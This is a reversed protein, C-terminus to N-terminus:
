EDGYPVEGTLEIEEYHKFAAFAEENTGLRYSRKQAGGENIVTSRPFVKHLYTGVATKTLIKNGSVKMGTCYNMYNEYLDAFAAKEKWVGRKDLPNGIIDTLTGYSLGDHLWQQASNFSGIKQAQLGVTEPVDRLEFDSLDMVLMDYLFAAQVDPSDVAAKLANFYKRDGVKSNNVDYVAYRREGRSSPVAVDLNTTMFIKLYSATNIIDIGKYEIALTSATIIHKLAGDHRIDGGFTAEEAQLFCTNALQSNFDGTLHKPSSAIFGHVGWINSIFVGLISKGSGKGGRLIIAVEAQRDPHQMTYAIWRTLYWHQKHDGGCV